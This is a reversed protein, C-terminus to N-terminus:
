KAEQALVWFAGRHATAPKRPGWRLSLTTRLVRLEEMNLCLYFMRSICRFELTPTETKQRPSNPAWLPRVLLSRGLALSIPDCVKPLILLCM